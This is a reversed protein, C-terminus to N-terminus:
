KLDGHKKKIHNAFQREALMLVIMQNSLPM